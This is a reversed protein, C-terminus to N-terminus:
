IERKLSLGTLNFKIVLGCLAQEKSSDKWPKPVEFRTGKKPNQRLSLTKSVIRETLAKVHNCSYGGEPMACEREADILQRPYRRALGVIGWRATVM